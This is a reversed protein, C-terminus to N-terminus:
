QSEARGLPPIKMEELWLSFHGQPPISGSRPHYYKLFSTAAITLKGGKFQKIFEKDIFAGRPQGGQRKGVGNPYEILQRGNIYIAYGEGANVHASGGAVIRYLYGEKFPPCEFTRRVLLVEKAWLTRPTISCGCFLATCHDSLKELKGGKQGFPPLGSKWGSKAADFDVAFWNPMGEPYTVKRYRAGAKDKPKKEQPEFSYYDWKTNKLDPGFAHWDYENVGAQRYFETLGYMTGRLFPSVRKAKEANAESLLAARNRGILEPIMGDLIIPKLAAQAAKQDAPGREVQQTVPKQRATKKASGAKPEVGHILDVMARGLTDGVLLYTEANRNYHYGQETPSEDVERWFDRTDVSRVNGAFEPHKAPDGVAMQAKLIHLYDGSMKHGGFGVTAVVALMKPAKFEARVDKILNALNQEYETILEPTFGDKHGQWWAFGAIEYGQGKYGPVIDKINDLTKRVGEVMLKYELSEWKNDPANRGSSPPRFDFGLARNGMATKILLVQEDHYTGMIHGFQLEPGITGAGPIPVTLPGGTFKIRAEYYYVDNRTTWNGKDDVLNQFKKDKKTVTDLDGKGSLDLRSMFFATSGGKFYTIKIPYRTGGTIDVKQQVAQEGVNKRYVERGDLEMVNYTSDGYGPNLSYTGTEPVDIYARVVHTHDGSMAPLTGQVTGLAVTVTKEPKLKDYNSDPDYPGKYISDTAGKAAGPEASLYVGHTKIKYLSRGIGIPGKPADPDVSLYIGTYRCKAGGITGMGVMNSQGALIYVKVPKTTDPAKGDPDPLQAPIVVAAAPLVLVAMAVAALTLVTKFRNRTTVILEQLILNLNFKIVVAFPQTRKTRV